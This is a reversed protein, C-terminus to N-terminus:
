SLIDNFKKEITRFNKFQHLVSIINKSASGNDYPNKFQKCSAIFSPKFAQQIAKLIESETPRVHIVSKAAMRLKQRDGINVTPIGFSPVEIIGSSSNGIVVDAFQLLSLYNLSGLNKYIHVNDNVAAFREMIEIIQKGGYDANPYTIILQVGQLKKLAKILAKVQNRTNIKEKTAPHFTVVAVKQKLLLGIKRELVEKSLLKMQSSNEVGLSGVNFVRSPEEGMQIVRRHYAAAATFHILSLKTIAHRMADDLSGETIEGGHIHALPVSLLHAAIAAGLIEYRDGLLVVLDPKLKELSKSIGKVAEGVAFPVSIKNEDSQQIKIKSDIKFKDNVIEKYTNGFRASLHSGTVILQLTYHKDSKIREMLPRLLGYEARSGTIICIKQKM